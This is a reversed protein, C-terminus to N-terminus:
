SNNLRVSLRKRKTLNFFPQEMTERQDRLNIDAFYPVFFDFHYPGDGDPNTRLAM